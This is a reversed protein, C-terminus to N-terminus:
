CTRRDDHFHRNLENGCYRQTRCTMFHVTEVRVRVRREGSGRMRQRLRVRQKGSVRM